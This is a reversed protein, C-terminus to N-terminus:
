TPRFSWPPSKSYREGARDSAARASGAPGRLGAACRDTRSAASGPHATAFCSLGSRMQVGGDGQRCAARGALSQLLLPVPSPGHSGLSGSFASGAPVSRGWYPPPCTIDVGDNPRPRAPAARCWPQTRRTSRTACDSARRTTARTVRIALAISAGAVGSRCTLGMTPAAPTVATAVLWDSPEIV